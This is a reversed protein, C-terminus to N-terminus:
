REVVSQYTCSVPVERVGAGAWGARTIIETEFGYRGARCNVLRLLELPYVRFGCQSDNVRLGSEMWVFLNSARRGLRSRSPYDPADDDRTGIILDRPWKRAVAVFQPIEDPDLQGDTDITIAHTHGAQAAAAFGTRLAAAKGRNRPQTVVQLPLEQRLEDLVHATADTSGDNVVFVPLGSRTLRTVIARLTRVNNFTPAVIAVSFSSREQM